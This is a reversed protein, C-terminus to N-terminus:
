MPRTMRLMSSFDLISIDKWFYLIIFAEVIVALLVALLVLSQILKEGPPSKEVSRFGAFLLGAALCFSLIRVVLGFTIPERSNWNEAVFFFFAALPYGVSLFTISILCGLGMLTDKKGEDKQDGISSMECYNYCM